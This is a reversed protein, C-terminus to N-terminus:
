VAQGYHFQPSEAVTNISKLTESKQLDIYPLIQRNMQM